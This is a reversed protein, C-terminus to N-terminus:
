VSEKAADVIAQAAARWQADTQGDFRYVYISPADLVAIANTCSPLCAFYFYGEPARVLEFGHQAIEKNLLAKTLKTM